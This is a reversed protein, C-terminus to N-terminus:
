KKCQPEMAMGCIDIVYYAVFIYPIYDMSYHMNEIYVGVLYKMMIPM